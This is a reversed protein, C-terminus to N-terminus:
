TFFQGLAEITGGSNDGDSLSGGGFFVSKIEKPFNSRYLRTYHADDRDELSFYFKLKEKPYDFTITNIFLNDTKQM